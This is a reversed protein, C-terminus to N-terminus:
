RIIKYKEIQQQSTSNEWFLQWEEVLKWYIIGFTEYSSFSNIHISLPSSIAEYASTPPSECSM